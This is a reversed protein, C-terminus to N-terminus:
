MYADFGHRTELLTRLTKIDYAGCGEELVALIKSETCRERLRPHLAALVLGVLEETSSMARARLTERAARAQLSLGVHVNQM